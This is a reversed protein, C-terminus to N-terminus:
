ARAPKGANNKGGGRGGNGKHGAGKAKGPRAAAEQPKLRTKGAEKLAKREAREAEKVRKREAQEAQKRAKEEAKAAKGPRAATAADPDAPPRLAALRASREAAARRIAQALTKQVERDPEAAKMQRLDRLLAGLGPNDLLRLAASQTQEAIQDPDRAQSSQEVM